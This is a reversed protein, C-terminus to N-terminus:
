VRTYVTDTEVYSEKYKNFIVMYIEIEIKNKTFQASEM